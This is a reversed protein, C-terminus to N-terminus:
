LWSPKFEFKFPKNSNPLLWIDGCEIDNIVERKTGKFLRVLSGGPRGNKKTGHHKALWVKGKTTVLGPSLLDTAKVKAPATPTEIASLPAPLSKNSQGPPTSLSLIKPQEGWKSQSIGPKKELGPFEEPGVNPSIAPINQGPLTATTHPAQASHALPPGRAQPIPTPTSAAAVQTKYMDWAYLADYYVGAVNRWAYRTEPYKQIEAMFEPTLIVPEHSPNIVTAKVEREFWPIYFALLKNVDAQESETGEDVM